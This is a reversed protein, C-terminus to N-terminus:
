RPSRFLRSTARRSSSSSPRRHTSSSGPCPTAPRAARCGTSTTSSSPPAPRTRWRTSSRPLVADVVRAAGVQDPEVPVDIAPCARRLAELVHSWLVVVDNDGEDVSLWGVPRRTAERDRWMGLLTTKGCGAPAAVLVVKVGAAPRLRELLRDRAVAQPRRTPPNLKTELLEPLTEGGRKQVLEGTSRVWSLVHIVRTALM